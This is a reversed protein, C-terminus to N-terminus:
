RVVVAVSDPVLDALRVLSRNHRLTRRQEEVIPWLVTALAAALTATDNALWHRGVAFGVLPPILQRLATWLQDALASAPVLIPAPEPLSNPTM